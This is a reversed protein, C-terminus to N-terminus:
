LGCVEVELRELERSVVHTKGMQLMSRIIWKGIKLKNMLQFARRGANGDGDYVMDINTNRRGTTWKEVRNQNGLLPRPFQKAPRRGFRFSSDQTEM